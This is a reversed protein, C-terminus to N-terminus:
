SITAGAATRRAALNSRELDVLEAIREVTPVETFLLRLPLEVQFTQYVRSLLETALLSQGVVDFFDDQMSVERVKLLDEVIAAIASETQTRPRV